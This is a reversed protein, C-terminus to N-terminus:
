QDRMGKEHKGEKACLMCIVSCISLAIILCVWFSTMPLLAGRAYPIIMGVSISYMARFFSDRTRNATEFYNIIEAFIFSFFMVGPIGFALYYEAFIPCSLNNFSGGYSDALLAGSHSLKGTWISRPVICGIATIINKCWLIGYDRVYHIAQMLMQYADYDNFSAKFGGFRFAGIDSLTNYKFFNFAPFVFYFGLFAAVIIYSKHPSREFVTHIIMLYTGFLLYRSLTGNIPFFIVICIGSIATLLIHRLAKKGSITKDKISMLTLLLAAVPIFRLIKVIIISLSDGENYGSTDSLSFLAHNLYLWAISIISLVSFVFLVNSNVRINLKYKGVWKNKNGYKRVFLYILFFLIIIFNAFLYDGDTYQSFNHINAGEIYQHLPTYYCFMFVFVYMMQDITVFGTSKLFAYICLTVIPIFSCVVIFSDASSICDIFDILVLAILGIYITYDLVESKKIKV